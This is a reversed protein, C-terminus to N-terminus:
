AAPRARTNGSRAVHRVIEREDDDAIDIRALDVRLECLIKGVIGRPRELRNVDRLLRRLLPPALHVFLKGRFQRTERQGPVNRLDGMGIHRREIQERGNQAVAAARSEIAPHALFRTKNEADRGKGVRRAIRPQEPDIRGKLRFIPNFRLPQNKCIM